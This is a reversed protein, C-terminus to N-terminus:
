NVYEAYSKEARTALSISKQQKAVRIAASLSSEFLSKDTGLAALFCEGFGIYNPRVV